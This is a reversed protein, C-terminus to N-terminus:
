FYLFQSFAEHATKGNQIEKILYERNNKLDELEKPLFTHKYKFFYESMLEKAKQESM